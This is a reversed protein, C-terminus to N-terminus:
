PAQRSVAVNMELVLKSDAYFALPIVDLESIPSVPKMLMLHTGGPSLTVSGGPPIDVASVARMQMVGDHMETKHIEVRQFKASRVETISLAVTAHNNITMYGASPMGPPTLRIWAGDTSIPSDQGCASLQILLLAFVLFQLLPKM